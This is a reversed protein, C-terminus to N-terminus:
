NSSVWSIEHIEITINYSMSTVHSVILLTSAYPARGLMLNTYFSVLEDQGLANEGAKLSYM